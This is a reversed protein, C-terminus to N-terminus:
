GQTTPLMNLDDSFNQVIFDILMPRCDDCLHERMHETLREQQEKVRQVFALTDGKVGMLGLIKAREGEAKLVSNLFTAKVQKSDASEYQKWAEARVLDLHELAQVTNQVVDRLLTPNMTATTRLAEEYERRYRTVTDPHVDIERAVESNRYGKAFLERAKEKRQGIGMTHRRRRAPM